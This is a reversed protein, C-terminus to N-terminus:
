QQDASGAGASMAFPCLDPWLQVGGGVQWLLDGASDYATVEGMSNLFAVMGAPPLSPPSRAGAASVRQAPAPKVFRPAAPAHLQGLPGATRCRSYAWRPPLFRLPVAIAAAPKGKQGLGARYQGKKGPQPLFIPPAVQPLPCAVSGLVWPAHLLSDPNLSLRDRVGQDGCSEQQGAAATMSEGAPLSELSVNQGLRRALQSVGDRAARACCALLWLLTAGRGVLACRSTM